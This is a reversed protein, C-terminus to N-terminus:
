RPAGQYNGDAGFHYGIHVHTDIWGPMLTLGTLEYQNGKTAQDVRLIRSGQIVLTKNKIVGGKGDLILSAHVTIIPAPEGWAPSLLLSLPLLHKIFSKM